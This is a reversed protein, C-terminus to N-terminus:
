INNLIEYTMKNFTLNSADLKLHAKEYYPIRKGLLFRLNKEVNTQLM